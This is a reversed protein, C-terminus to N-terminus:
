LENLLDKAPIGKLKGQRILTMQEIGEKVGEFVENQHADLPQTKVYKFNKLLELIFAAKDERIDLLVKM